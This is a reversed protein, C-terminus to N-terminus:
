PFLHFVFAASEPFLAHVLAAGPLVSHLATLQAFSVRLEHRWSPVSEPPWKLPMKEQNPDQVLCDPKLDVVLLLCM